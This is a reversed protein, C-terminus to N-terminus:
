LRAVMTLIGIARDGTQKKPILRLVMMLQIPWALTSEITQLVSAMESIASRPLRQFDVPTFMDVGLGARASMKAATAYLDDAQIPELENFEAEERIVRFTEVVQQKDMLVPAWLRAFEAQKVDM